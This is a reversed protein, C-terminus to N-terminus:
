SFLPWCVASLAANAPSARERFTPHTRETDRVVTETTRPRTPLVKSENQVPRIVFSIDPSQFRAFEPQFVAHCSAAHLLSVLAVAAATQRSSFEAM